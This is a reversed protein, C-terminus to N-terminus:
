RLLPLEKLYHRPNKELTICDFVKGAKQASVEVSNDYNTTYIRRWKSCCITEQSERTEVITFCSKLLDILERPNDNDELYRDAAYMLDRSDEDDEFGGLQSILFALDEAMPPQEQRVNKMGRSFGAGTFLLANGSIIRGLADELAVDINEPTNDTM